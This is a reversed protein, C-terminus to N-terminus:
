KSGLTSLVFPTVPDCQTPAPGDAHTGRRPFGTTRLAISDDRTQMAIFLPTALESLVRPNLWGPCEPPRGRASRSYGAAPHLSRRTRDLDHSRPPLGLLLLPSYNLVSALPYASSFTPKTVEQLSDCNIHIGSRLAFAIEAATKVPSDFVIKSSPCGCALAHRLEAESACEPPRAHL